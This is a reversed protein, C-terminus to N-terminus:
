ENNQGITEIDLMSQYSELHERSSFYVLGQNVLFITYLTFSVVSAIILSLAIIVKYFGMESIEYESLSSTFFGFIYLIRPLISTLYGLAQMLFMLIFSNGLIGWFDVKILQFATQYSAFFAQKRIVYEYYAIAVVSASFPGILLLMPIGVILFILIASLSFAIAVVPGVILITLLFFSFGRRINAKIQKSFGKIDKNKEPQAVMNNLYIVPFTFINISILISVIAIVIVLVFTIGFNNNIMSDIKDGEMSTASDYFMDFLFYTLLILLIFYGGCLKMFNQFFLKGESKLFAFTDNLYEGFNRRKFITIKNNEM